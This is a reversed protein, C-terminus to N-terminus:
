VWRVAAVGTGLTELEGGFYNQQFHKLCLLEIEEDELDGDGHQEQLERLKKQYDLIINEWIRPVCSLSTPKLLCIDEFFTDDLPRTLLGVKGGGVLTRLSNGSASHSLQAFCFTCNESILIRQLPILQGNLNSDDIM